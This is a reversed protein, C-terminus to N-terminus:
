DDMDPHWLSLDEEVSFRRVTVRRTAPDDNAMSASTESLDLTKTRADYRGDLRIAYGAPCPRARPLERDCEVLRMPEGTEPYVIRNGRIVTMAAFGPYAGSEGQVNANYADGELKFSYPGCRVYRILPGRIDAQGTWGPLAQSLTEPDIVTRRPYGTEASRATSSASVSFRFHQPDCLIVIPEADSEVQAAPQPGVPKSADEQLAALAIAVILM